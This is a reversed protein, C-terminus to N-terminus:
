RPALSVNRLDVMGFPTFVIGKVYPKVVLYSRGFYLPIAATDAVLLREAEEYFGLRNRADQEVRARELLADVQANKYRGVNNEAQSHFLVDLFNHPDPYDAIWGYDFLHDRRQKLGYYYTNPDALRVQVEVGLNTRWQDLLGAVIESPATFGSTTYILPPLGSIGGYKSQALLRKAEEPNFGIAPLAQNHGPLGPPLFGQAVQWSQGVVRRILQDRDVSLLFARRVLPDDFPPRDVSLGVYFVSLEPNVLLERSLANAPATVESLEEAFVHSVDIEGTEYMLRPIGGYLRFVVYPVRPPDRYYTQNAELVLLVGPQWAKLRFPGTGNPKAWWPEELREKAVNNRDVVYTVPHALKSLFYAKPADITVELTRPDVARVGALATSKGTAVDKFGVIDDLYTGATESGTEPDAVREWSYKVDEATVARGDHFRANERLTFTFVRGDGSVRWQALEPVVVLDPGFSVLGSFIQSLYEISQSEQAIAPDLTLPGENFFLTLAEKRSIGLPAPEQLRLSALLAGVEEGHKEFTAQPASAVLVINQSGRVVALLSGRVNGQPGRWQMDVQFAPTGGQVTLDKEEVVRFGPLNLFQPLIQDVAVDPAVLDRNYRVHVDVVPSDDTPGVFRVAPLAEGTEVTEWAPPYRVQFGFTQDTYTEFTAPITVPRPPVRTPTPSGPAPTPTRVPTPTATPSPLRTPTPATTPTATPTPVPTATPTPEPQPSLLECGLLAVVVVGLVWVRWNM